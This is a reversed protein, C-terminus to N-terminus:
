NVIRFWRISYEHAGARLQNGADPTSEPPDPAAPPTRAGSWSSYKYGKARPSTSAGRQAINRFDRELLRYARAPVSRAGRLRAIGRPGKLLPQENELRAGEGFRRNPFPDRGVNLYLFGFSKEINLHLGSSATDM